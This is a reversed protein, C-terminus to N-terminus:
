LATSVTYLVVSYINTIFVKIAMSFPFYNLQVLLTHATKIISLQCQIDDLHLCYVNAIKIKKSSIPMSLFIM